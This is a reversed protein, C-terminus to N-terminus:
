SPLIAHSVNEAIGWHRSYGMNCLHWYAGLFDTFHICNKKIVLKEDNMPSMAGDSYANKYCCLLRSHMPPTTYILKELERGYGEM